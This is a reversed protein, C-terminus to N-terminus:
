IECAPDITIPQAVNGCLKSVVEPRMITWRDGIYEVHGVIITLETQREIPVPGFPANWTLPLTPIEERIILRISPASQTMLMRTVDLLNMRYIAYCVESLNDVYKHMNIINIILPKCRRTAREYLLTFYLCKCSDRM